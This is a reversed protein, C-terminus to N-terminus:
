KQWSSRHAQPRSHSVSIKVEGSFSGSSSLSIHVSKWCHPSGQPHESFHYNHAGFSGSQLCSELRFSFEITKATIKWRSLPLPCQSRLEFVDRTWFRATMDLEWLEGRGYSISTKTFLFEPNFDIFKPWLGKVLWFRRWSWLFRNAYSYLESHTLSHLKIAFDLRVDEYVKICHVHIASSKGLNVHKLKLIM